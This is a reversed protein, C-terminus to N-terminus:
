EGKRREGIEQVTKFTAPSVLEPQHEHIELSGCKGIGLYSRNRFFTTWSNKDRYLREQTAKTIDRLSKGEARLEFALTVLPGLIPDRPWPM